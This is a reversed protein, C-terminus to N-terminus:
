YVIEFTNSYVTDYENGAIPGKFSGFHKLATFRIQYKGPPLKVVSAKPDTLNTMVVGEFLYGYPREVSQGGGYSARALPMSSAAGSSGIALNGQADPNFSLSKGVVHLQTQRTINYKKELMGWDKGKYLAEIRSFRTTTAPVPLVLLPNTNLNHTSGEAITSAFGDTVTYVGTSLTANEVPTLEQAALGPALAPDALMANFKASKRVWVPADRWAGVMGAYPVSAVRDGDVDIVVYGSYIPYLGAIANAPPQVKVTFDRSKGPELVFNLKEVPTNSRSVFKITAYDATYKQDNATLTADDKDEFPTVMLAPLHKITYNLPTTGKNTITLEYRQKINQTDNFALMPPEVVTKTTLAAYANVLGAGQLAATNVLETNYKKTITATNMLATRLTEFTPRDRGAAELMLAAVGAVYPTAMSTGSMERYPRKGDAAFKSITSYVKGGIGGIEPKLYLESDLGYSSFDSVTFATPVDFLGKKDSVNVKLPRGAKAAALMALGAKRTTAMSPISDGGFIAPVDDTNSYIMCGTAGAAAVANCRRRSGAGGWRVVAIKGAVAPNIAGFGDDLKDNAEADIDNFVFELEQDVVFSSNLEGENYEFKAGEFNFFPKPVNANDFSAVAFGRLANAPSGGTFVGMDGDNGMASLVIVGHKAVVKNVAISEVDDSFTPSGGLSMNIIDAGDEAAKYIAAAIVDSGSGGSCAFVRYAGFQVEPAVGTWPFDPAWEGTINRADGGIIGAVHTGHASDNCADMPDADETPPTTANYFDGVLDWGFSVRCNAGFCGGLAPHNYDIGTDIVAVKIGKGTLGLKSRVDNVGTLSHILEPGISGKGDAAESYPKPARVAHVRSIDIARPLTGAMEEDVPLPFQVSIMNVDKTKLRVRTQLKSIDLGLSGFHNRVHAEADVDQPLEFVFANAIAERTTQTFKATAVGALTVLALLNKFNM